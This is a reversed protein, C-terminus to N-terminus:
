SPEGLACTDTAGTWTGAEAPSVATNPSGTVGEEPREPVEQPVTGARPM